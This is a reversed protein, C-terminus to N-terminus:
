ATYTCIIRGKPTRIKNHKTVVHRLYFSISTNPQNAPTNKQAFFGNSFIFELKIQNMIAGNWVIRRTYHCVVFCCSHIYRTQSLTWHYCLWCACHCCAHTANNNLPLLLLSIVRYRILLIIDFLNFKPLRGILTPTTMVMKMLLMLKLKCLGIWNKNIYIMNKTSCTEGGWEEPTRTHTHKARAKAM